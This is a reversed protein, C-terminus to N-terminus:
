LAKGFFLIGMGFPFALAVQSRGWELTIGEGNQTMIKRSHGLVCM